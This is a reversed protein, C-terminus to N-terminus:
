LDCNTNCGFFSLSVYLHVLNSLWTNTVMFVINALFCWADLKEGQTRFARSKTRFAVPNGKPSSTYDDRICIIIQYEHM